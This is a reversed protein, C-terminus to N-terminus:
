KKTREAQTNNNSSAAVNANKDAASQARAAFSSRNGTENFHKDNASQIRSAADKTMPIPKEKPM